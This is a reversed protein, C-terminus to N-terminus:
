TLVRPIKIEITTGEGPRSSINYKGLMMGVREKIGLLGFTQDNQKQMTDFGIGDDQVFLHIMNGLEEIKIKM